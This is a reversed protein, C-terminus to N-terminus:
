MPTVTAYWVEPYDHIYPLVEGWAPDVIENENLVVLIHGFTKITQEADDVQIIAVLHPYTEPREQTQIFDYGNDALLEKWALNDPHEFEPTTHLYTSGNEEGVWVGIVPPLVPIYELPMGTLMSLCASFCDGKIGDYPKSQRIVGGPLESAQM